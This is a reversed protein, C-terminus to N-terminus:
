VLLLFGPVAVVPRTYSFLVFELAVPHWSLCPLKSYGHNLGLWTRAKELNIQGGDGSELMPM